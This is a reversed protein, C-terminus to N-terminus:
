GPSIRAAERLLDAIELRGDKRYAAEATHGKVEIAPDAGHALLFEAMEVADDEDGPLVWLPTFAGRFHCANVLAPEEAFLAALRDRFGLYTLNHVDRSLPALYAAIERHGFHACFGMPGDHEKTPRDIDAGAAVLMRAIELANGVVASHLPRLGSDNTIDAPVGIELLMAVIDPRNRRAASLMPEADGLFEPHQAALAVAGARDGSLCAARFAEQGTLTPEDAGHRALLEAMTVYGQITAEQRLPRKTYAHLTNANGGHALLWEARRLHNDAVANGLLYDLPSLVLRGGIGSDGSENRWAPLRGRAASADWLFDLWFVNDETISTNYLAQLDCPDAGREVLCAALERAKPHPPQVGEGEGIVGTLATFRPPGWDGVWHANPDAGHDLLLNAIEVADNECGPLRSHALYLLPERMFPGGPRAAAAADTALFRRVCGLNGTAAATFIDAEGIEPWRKLIRAGTAYDGQWNASRLVMEIREALSRRTLALDDLAARFDTWGAFGYERALALQVDRLTPDAPAAPIAARLRQRAAPDKDRLAKLWRKAQKRFNDLSSDPSLARSM